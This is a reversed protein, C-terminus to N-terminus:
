RLNLLTRVDAPAPAEPPLPSLGLAALLLAMAETEATTIMTVGRPTGHLDVKGLGRAALLIMQAPDIPSPAKSM